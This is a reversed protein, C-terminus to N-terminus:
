DIFYGIETLVAESMEVGVLRASPFSYMEGEFRKLTDRSLDTKKQLMRMVADSDTAFQYDGPIGCSPRITLSLPITKAGDNIPSSMQTIINM